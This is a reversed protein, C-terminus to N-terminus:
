SFLTTLGNPNNLDVEFYPLLLTAAPVDDITCIVASAPAVLALLGVLLLCSAVRAMLVRREAVRGVAEPQCEPKPHDRARPWPGARRALGTLLLSCDLAITVSSYYCAAGGPRRPTWFEAYDSRLITGGGLSPRRRDISRAPVPVRAGRNSRAPLSG